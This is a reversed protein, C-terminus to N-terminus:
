GIFVSREEASMKAATAANACFGGGGGPGGGPAVAVGAAGATGGGVVTADGAAGPAGPANAEGATPACPIVDGAAGPTTAEGAGAPAIGLGATEAVKLAAGAAKGDGEAGGAFDPQVFKRISLKRFPPGIM